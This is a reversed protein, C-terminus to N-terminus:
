SVLRTPAKLLVIVKVVLSVAESVRVSVMLPSTFSPAAVGETGGPPPPKFYNLIRNIKTQRYTQGTEPSHWVKKQSYQLRKIAINTKYVHENTSFHFLEVMFM